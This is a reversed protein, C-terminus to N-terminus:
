TTGASFIIPNGGDTLLADRIYTEINKYPRVQTPARLYPPCSTTQVM